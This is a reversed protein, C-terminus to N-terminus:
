GEPRPQQSLRGDHTKNM